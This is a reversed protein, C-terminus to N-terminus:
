EGIKNFFTIYGHYANSNAQGYANQGASYVEGRHTLFYSTEDSSYGCCTFQKIESIDFPVDIKTFSTYQTTNRTGLNGNGNYGSVWLTNNNKRIITGQHYCYQGTDTHWVDTVGTQVLVPSPQSSTNNTGLQGYGNYGWAWLNGNTDIYHNAGWQGRAIDIKAVPNTLFNQNLKTFTVRNNADGNGLAYNGNYGAAWIENTTTVVFIQNQHYYAGSYTGGTTHVSRVKGALSGGILTPTYRTVYDGQGCAGYGNYGCTYMDGNINVMAMIGTHGGECDFDVINTGNIVATPTTTNTAHGLGLEGHNNAGWSWLKNNNDLAYCSTREWYGGSVTLKFRKVNGMIKRPNYRDTSTGDAQQGYDNRGWSWLEGDAYLVYVSYYAVKIDIIEKGNRSDDVPFSRWRDTWSQYTQAGVYNSTLMGRGYIKNDYTVGFMFRENVKNSALLKFKMHEIPTGNDSTIGSKGDHKVTFTRDFFMPLESFTSTGDGVKSGIAENLENTIIVQEGEELLPDAMLWNALIDRRLKITTSM